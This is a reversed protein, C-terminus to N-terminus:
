WTKAYEEMQKASILETDGTEIGILAYNKYVAKGADDVAQDRDIYQSYNYGIGLLQYNLEDNFKEMWNKTEKKM